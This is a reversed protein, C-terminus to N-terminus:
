PTEGADMVAIELGHFLRKVGDVARYSQEVSNESSNFCICLM